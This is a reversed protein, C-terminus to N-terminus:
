EVSPYDKKGLTHDLVKYAETELMPNIHIYDLFDGMTKSLYGRDSIPKSIEADLIEFILAAPNAMLKEYEDLSIFTINNPFDEIAGSNEKSILEITTRLEQSNAFPVHGYTLVMGICNDPGLYDMSNKVQEVAEWLRYSEEKIEDIKRLEMTERKFTFRKCEIVLFRLEHEAYYEARKGRINPIQDCSIVDNFPFQLLKKAYAELIHGFDNLFNIRETDQPFSDLILYFLNETTAQLFLDRIPICYEDPKMRIIPYRWLPKFGYRGVGDIHFDEAYRKYEQYNASFYKLFSSMGETTISQIDNIALQKFTYINEDNLSNLFISTSISFFENMNLNTQAYIRDEYQRFLFSSRGIINREQPEAVFQEYALFTFAHFFRNPNEQDLSIETLRYDSDFYLRIANEYDKQEPPTGRHNNSLMIAFHTIAIRLFPRAILRFREKKIEDSDDTLSFHDLASILKLWLRTPHKRISKKFEIFNKKSKEIKEASSDAM